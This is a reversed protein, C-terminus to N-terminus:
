RQTKRSVRFCFSLIRRTIGGASIHHPYPKCNEEAKLVIDLHKILVNLNFDKINLCMTTSKCTVPHGFNNPILIPM